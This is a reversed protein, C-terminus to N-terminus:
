TSSKSSVVMCCTACDNKSVDVEQSPERRGRIPPVDPSMAKRVSQVFGNGHMENNSSKFDSSHVIRRRFPAIEMGKSDAAKQSDVFDHRLNEGEGRFNIRVHRRLHSRQIRYISPFSEKEKSIEPSFRSRSFSPNQVLSIHIPDRRRRPVIYSESLRERSSEPHEREMKGHPNKRRLTKIESDLSFLARKKVHSFSEPEMRENSVVMYCSECSDKNVSIDQDPEKRKRNGISSERMRRSFNVNRSTRFHRALELADDSSRLPASTFNRGSVVMCCSEGVEKDLSIEQSPERRRKKRISPEEFTRLNVRHSTGSSSRPALECLSDLSKSSTFDIEHGSVVMCCSEGAEKDLSIHQSPYRRRRKGISSRDLNASRPDGFSSRPISESFAALSRSLSSDVGRGSVVMCCSEGVDKNLIIDQRPKRRAKERVSFREFRRLNTSGSTGFSSRLSFETFASPTRSSSFEPDVGSVVICCSESAEKGVNLNQPPARRQKKRNRTGNRREFRVSDLNFSRREQRLVPFRSKGCWEEENMMEPSRRRSLREPKDFNLNNRLQVRGRRRSRYSVSPNRKRFSTELNRSVRSQSRRRERSLRGPSRRFVQVLEPASRRVKPPVSSSRIKKFREFSQEFDGLTQVGCSVKRPESSSRQRDIKDDRIVLKVVRERGQSFKSLMELRLRRELAAQASLIKSENMTSSQNRRSIEENSPTARENANAMQVRSLIANFELRLRAEMAAIKKNLIEKFNDSSGFKGGSPNKIEESIIEKRADAARMVRESGSGMPADGVGEHSPILDECEMKNDSPRETLNEVASVSTSCPNTKFNPNAKEAPNGLANGSNSKGEQVIESTSESGRQTRADAKTDDNKKYDQGNNVNQSAGKSEEKVDESEKQSSVHNIDNQGEFNTTKSIPLDKRGVPLRSEAKHDSMVVDEGNQVDERKGEINKVEADMSNLESSLNKQVTDDERSLSKEKSGLTSNRAENPVVRQEKNQQKGNSRHGSSATRLAQMRLLSTKQKKENQSKSSKSSSNSKPNGYSKRKGKGRGSSRRQKRQKASTSPTKM